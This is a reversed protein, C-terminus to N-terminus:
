ATNSAWNVYGPNHQLFFPPLLCISQCVFLCDTLAVSCCVTLCVSLCVSRYVPCIVAFVIHLAKTGSASPDSLFELGIRDLIVVPNKKMLFPLNMKITAVM